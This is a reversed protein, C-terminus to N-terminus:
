SAISKQEMMKFAIAEIWKKPVLPHVSNGIFKKQDSQNGVLVYDEPFGQIKKLEMVKLMRMKIDVIGYLAMFFKIKRVAEGDTTYVEIAAHGGEVEVLYPPMKDMRAILTFSPVDISGGTNMYQPNMLYHWKRNATITPLPAEPSSGVNGFNTNMIFQPQVLSAKPVPMVAGMPETVANDKTGQSFQRDIWEANYLALKPNPTITGAPVDTSQHNDSGSYQKDIWETSILSHGDGTRLTPAATEISHVNDGNSYYNAIFEPQVVNPQRQAPITPAPNDVSGVTHEMGGNQAASNYKLLFETQVVGRKDSATLAGCPLESSDADSGHHYNLLFDAQVVAQGDKTRIAGSPGDLSINMGMPDGSFYKSIFDKQGMCAVYKILGALIREFTRESRIKGPTFISTGKDELDLCPRCAEWKKLSGFMGAKEPNKAHTPHPWVIPLEPRAFCGFLRLRSTKAGFDASNLKQWDDWFGHAKMENRWRMWDRGNLKSVPKGKKDLPGWSMFEVVNEIQVYDPAIADVYRHLHDALTRSDADRPKGGKAKSFNTCELSAWLILRADPYLNQQMKVIHKLETLDLSRIDEEFHHVEPHNKWHSEIAKPDHNVAAIVKVIKGNSNSAQEFGITTGGAGCFLDVLLFMPASM